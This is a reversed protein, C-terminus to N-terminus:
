AGCVLVYCLKCLITTRRLISNIRGSKISVWEAWNLEDMELPYYRNTSDGCIWTGRLRTWEGRSNTNVRLECLVYMAVHGAWILLGNSRYACITFPELLCSHNTLFRSWTRPLVKAMKVGESITRVCAPMESLEGLRENGYKQFVCKFGRAM